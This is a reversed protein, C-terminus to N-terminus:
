QALVEVSGSPVLAPNRVGNRAVIDQWTAYIAGPTDGAVYEAILWAPLVAPTVVEIVAPLRGILSSMDAAFAARVALLDRWVPAALAPESAAQVGAATIAADIAAYILAAEAQAAQQSAWAVGSVAEVAAAVIIAQMAAALAPGPSLAGAVANAAGVAGLLTATADLAAAAVPPTTPGGPAVAAPALPEAAGAIALPVAALAAATATGWGAVPATTPVELATIAPAAAAGIAAGSPGSGALGTWMAALEGIWSQAYGFTALPLVAPHLVGALWDEADTVTQNVSGLLASLTDLESAPPQEYTWFEAEFRAIRLEKIAFSITAPQKLVVQLTGLWPHRLTLPGPGGLTAQLNQAQEAYDDGALVGRVQIPGALQGLDQFVPDDAGPFLFRQVRRGMQTSSDVIGFPIGGVSASLLTDLLGVIDIM